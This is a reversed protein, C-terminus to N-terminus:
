TLEGPLLGYVLSDRREGSHLVRMHSRLHGERSFGCREAVSQSAFNDPDTTLELRELRLEDFAWRSIARTADTIYGHGRAELALWYGVTAAMGTSNVSTLGISGVLAGTDATAVAFDIGCGSLRAPEQSELWSRADADSYPFAISPSYRSVAPDQCADVIFPLDKMAWPRLGVCGATLPPNPFCLEAM